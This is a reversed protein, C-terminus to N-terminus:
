ESDGFAKGFSIIELSGVGIFDKKNHTVLPVGLELATAAIWADDPPIPRGSSDAECSAIAWQKSLDLSHPVETFQAYFEFFTAQKRESWARAIIWREIEARTQFSVCAVKGELYDAYLAYRTDGRFQYSLINTDVVVVGAM